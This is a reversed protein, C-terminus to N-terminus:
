GALHLIERAEAATAIDAGLPELVQRAQRVLSANDPAFVGKSLFINDELGVRVHGGLLWSQAAMPFQFAGVGMATWICDKPLAGSAFTMSATTPPLGYGPALVLTFLGPGDLVGQAILREARVLDGSEFIEIEPKVGASRIIEAMEVVVPELNMAIIVNNRNGSMVDAMQMTNMDLTCIDPKLEVVHATREAAPLVNSGPGPTAWNGASPIFLCGYGTTLNIIVRDDRQRIRDVVERYHSIKPSPAGSEEDRVHIHM